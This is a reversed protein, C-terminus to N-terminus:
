KINRVHGHAMRWVSTQSIGFRSAVDRQRMGSAVLDRVEQVQADTITAMHHTEGHVVPPLTMRGKETADQLNEAQTGIFLHDPNNCARVDCKHLVSLGVGIPGVFAAYSLRHAYTNRNRFSLQGYGNKTSGTWLWCGSKKDVRCGLRIRQAAKTQTAADIPLALDAALKITKIAM